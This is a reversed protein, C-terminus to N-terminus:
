SAVPNRSVSDLGAAIDDTWDVAEHVSDINVLQWEESAGNAELFLAFARKIGTAGIRSRSLRHHFRIRGLDM